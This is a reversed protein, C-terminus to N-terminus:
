EMPIFLVNQMDPMQELKLLLDAVLEQKKRHGIQSLIEQKTFLLGLGSITELTLFRKYWGDYDDDSFSDLCDFCVSKYYTILADGADKRRFLEGASNFYEYQRHWTHVPISDSSLMACGPFLPSNALADILGL